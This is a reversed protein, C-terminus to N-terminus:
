SVLSGTSYPQFNTYSVQVTRITLSSHFLFFAFIVFINKKARKTENRMIKVGSSSEEVPQM